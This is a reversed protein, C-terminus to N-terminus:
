SENKSVFWRYFFGGKEREALAEMEGHDLWMGKCKPCEDISVGHLKRTTLETGDRPCRGHAGTRLADEVEEDKGQKL